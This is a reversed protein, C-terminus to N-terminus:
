EKTGGATSRPPGTGGVFRCVGGVHGSEYTAFCVGVGALPGRLACDPAVRTRSPGSSLETIVACAGILPAVDVTLTVFVVAPPIAPAIRVAPPSSVAAAPSVMLPVFPVFM